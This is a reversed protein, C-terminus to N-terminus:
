AALQTQQGREAAIIQSGFLGILAAEARGDDKVRSFEKSFDPFRETALQRSAQKDKSLSFASKWKSPTVRRLPYGRAAILGLITGYAQGFKFTSAVGQGPMSSVREVFAADVQGDVHTALWDDIASPNLEKEFTPLDAVDLLQHDRLLAVAGSLGPDFSLILM